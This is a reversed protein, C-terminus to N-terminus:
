RAPVRLRVVTWGGHSALKTHGDAAGKRLAAEVLRTPGLSVGTGGPRVRSALAKWEQLAGADGFAPQVEAVATDFPPEALEELTAAPRLEVTGQANRGTFSLALLDRDAALVKAGRRALTRSVAGYGGRWVLARAGPKSPLCSLLLPLGERQHGPDESIDAPRDLELDGVKVRDRLYITDDEAPACAGDRPAIAWVEHRASQAARRGELGQAALVEAVVPGLDRIVVFRLEGGSQLRAAGGKAFAAIADRGIRAPVNCLIWDFPASGVDRYGLSGACIVNNLGHERANRQAYRVALLDRDVLLLKATPHAAAIPLGLGGCGCGLDLLTRPATASPLNQLLLLTGDDLRDASFLGAAAVLRLRQGLAEALFHHEILPM